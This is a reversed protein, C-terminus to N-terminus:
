RIKTMAETYNTDSGLSSPIEGKLRHWLCDIKECEDSKNCIDKNSVGPGGFCYIRPPLTELNNEPM